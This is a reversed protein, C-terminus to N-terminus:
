RAGPGALIRTTYDLGGYIPFILTVSVTAGAALRNTPGLNANIYQSYLPAVYNTAATRNEVLTVPDLGDLVVSLPGPIAASGINKLTLTQVYAFKAYDFRRGSRKVSVQATKDVAFTSANPNPTLLFIGDVTNSTPDNNTSGFAIIQGKGNIGTSGRLVYGNGGPVLFNLDQIGRSREWLVAHGFGGPLGAGGVVQGSNNIAAAGSGSGGPFFGLLQLGTAESWLFAQGTSTEPENAGVVQDKDNIANAQSFGILDPTLDRIGHLSDWLYAHYLFFGNADMLASTSFGVVKGGNNIGLAGNVGFPELTGLDRPITPTDWRISLTGRPEQSRSAQGAIQGRDNIGSGYSATYDNPPPVDQMGRVPDWLFAHPFVNGLTDVTDRVGTVQGLNNVSNAKKNGDGILGLDLPGHVPDWPFAHVTTQFTDLDLHSAEGVVQGKDNIGRIAIGDYPSDYGPPVPLRTISYRTQAVIPLCVLFAILVVSSRFLCRM